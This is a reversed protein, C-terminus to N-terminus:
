RSGTKLSTPLGGKCKPDWEKRIQEEVSLGTDTTPSRVGANPSDTEIVPEDAIHRPTRKPDSKSAARPRKPPKESHMTGGGAFEAQKAFPNSGSITAAAAQLEARQSGSDGASFGTSRATSRRPSGPM